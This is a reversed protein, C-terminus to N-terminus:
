SKCGAFRVRIGAKCAGKNRMRGWIRAKGRTHAYGAEFVSRKQVAQHCAGFEAACQELYWDPHEDLLQLLRVPDIKGKHTKPYHNKIVGNESLAEKWRYYSQPHVGFIERMQAFTHGGDKFKIVALRFKEDYAM